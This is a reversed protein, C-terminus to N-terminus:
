RMFIGELVVWFFFIVVFILIIFVGEFDNCIFFIRLFELRWILLIWWGKEVGIICNIDVVCIFLWGWVIRYVLVVLWGWNIVEIEFVDFVIVGCIICLDIFFVKVKVFWCVCNNWWGILIFKIVFGWFFIKSFCVVCILLWCIRCGWFISYVLGDLWCWNIVEIKLLDFLIFGCIM